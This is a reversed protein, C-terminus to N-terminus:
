GTWVSIDLTVPREPQKEATGGQEVRLWDSPAPQLAETPTNLARVRVRLDLSPPAATGSSLGRATARKRQRQRSGTVCVCVRRRRHSAPIAAVPRIQQFKRHPSEPSANPRRTPDLRPTHTRAHGIAGATSSAPQSRDRPRSRIPPDPGLLPGCPPPPPPPPPGAPTESYGTLVYGQGAAFLWGRRPPDPHPLPPPALAPVLCGSGAAVLTLQSGANRKSQVSSRGISRTLNLDLPCVPADARLLRGLGTHTATGPSALMSGASRPQAHPYRPAITSQMSSTFVLLNGGLPAICLTPWVSRAHKWGSYAGEAM